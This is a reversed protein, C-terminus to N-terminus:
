DNTHGLFHQLIYQTIQRPNNLDLQTPISQASNLTSDTAIAIISPDNPFILDKNLSPRHLEIKPFNEAKFGEVLILDLESQEFALLQDDLCPEKIENFETIIARRHSSVLMIPTAGAARLRYSDKGPKDIEFNHHSHKILGVRVGQNKLLPILQELLTTKGTGSVAAFGLIPVQANKM